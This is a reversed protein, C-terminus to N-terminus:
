VNIASAPNGILNISLFANMIRENLVKVSTLMTM